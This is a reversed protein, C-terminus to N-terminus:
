ERRDSKHWLIYIAQQDDSEAVKDYTTLVRRLGQAQFRDLDDDDDDCRGGSDVEEEKEIREFNM